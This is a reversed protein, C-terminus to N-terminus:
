LRCAIPSALADKYARLKAATENLRWDHGAASNLTSDYYSVIGVKDTHNVAWRWGATFWREPQPSQALCCGTEGVGVMPRAVGHDGLWGLVRELREGFREGGAEQYVDIGLFPMRSLVGPTLYDEPQGDPDRPNFIWDSFTPVFTVNALGTEDKMVDYQRIYAAAFAAGLGGDDTPEHHFTSIVPRSYSAYRRARARIDSDFAGIGILTWDFNPGQPPKYSVWPLRNAAHDQKITADEKSADSWRFFSRQAGVPGTRGLSAALDPSTLGLYVRGPKHGPWRPLSVALAAASTADSWAAGASGGPVAAAALSLGSLSLFKRRDL